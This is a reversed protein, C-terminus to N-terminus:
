VCFVTIIRVCEHVWVPKFTCLCTCDGRDGNLLLFMSCSASWDSTHKPVGGSGSSVDTHKDVDCESKLLGM